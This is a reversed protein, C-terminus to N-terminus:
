VEQTVVVLLGGVRAHRLYRTAGLLRVLGQVGSIGELGNGKVM